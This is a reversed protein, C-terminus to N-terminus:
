CKRGDNRMKQAREGNAYGIMYHAVMKERDSMDSFFISDTVNRFDTHGKNFVKRIADIGNDDISFIDKILEANINLIEIIRDKLM